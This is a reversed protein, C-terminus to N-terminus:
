TEEQAAAGLQKRWYDSPTYRPIMQKLKAVVKVRDATAVWKELYTLDEWFLEPDLDNPKSVFIREHRTANTGEESTLIEEYLKEGPRIGCFEIKIDEGPVLGSLRILDHA